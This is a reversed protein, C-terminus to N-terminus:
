GAAGEVGPAHDEGRVHALYDDDLSPLDEDGIRRTVMKSMALHVDGFFSAPIEDGRIMMQLMLGDRLANFLLAVSELTFPPRPEIGWAEGVAAFSEAAAADNSQYLRQMCERVVEDNPHTAWLVMRAFHVPDDVWSQYTRASMRRVELAPDDSADELDDDLQTLRESSSSHAPDTVYRVFDEVFEAQTSWYLYFTQRHLGASEAVAGATLVRRLHDRSSEALLHMAGELLAERTDRGQRAM